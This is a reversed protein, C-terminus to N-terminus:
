VLLAQEFVAISPLVLEALSVPVDFRQLQQPRVIRGDGRGARSRLQLHRMILLKLTEHFRLITSSASALLRPIIIKRQVELVVRAVKVIHDSRFKSAIKEM